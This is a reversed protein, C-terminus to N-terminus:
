QPRVTAPVSLSPKAFPQVKAKKFANEICSAAPTGAAAGGVSVSKVHGDSAFTIQVSSPDDQGAVCARAQGMVSGIAASVAGSSPYDPLGGTPLEAPRMPEASPAAPAPAAPAPAPEEDELTIAEPAVGSPVASPASAAPKAALAGGAAPSPANAAKAAEAQAPPLQAVQEAPAAPSPEGQKDAQPAAPANAAAATTTTSQLAIPPEPTKRTMVIVVAAAAALAAFASLYLPGRSPTGTPAAPPVSRLPTSPQPAAEDAASPEEEAASPAAAEAEIDPVSASRPKSAAQVREAIEDVQARAQSAVALSERAIDNAGESKRKMSARALEALSKPAVPAGATVAAAASSGAEFGPEGAEPPLPAAFLAEDITGSTARAKEVTREALAEWDREALSWESLLAEARAPLKEEPGSNM